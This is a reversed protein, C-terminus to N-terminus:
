AGGESTPCRYAKTGEFKSVVPNNEGDKTQSVFEIEDQSIVKFTDQVRADRQTYTAIVFTEGAREVVETTLDDQSFLDRGNAVSKVTTGDFTITTRKEGSCADLSNWGWTGQISFDGMDCGALLAMVLVPVALAPFARRTSATRM